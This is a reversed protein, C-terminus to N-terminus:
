CRASDVWGVLAGLGAGGGLLLAGIPVGVHTHTKALILLVLLAPMNLHCQSWGAEFGCWGDWRYGYHHMCM